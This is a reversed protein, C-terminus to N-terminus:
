YVYPLVAEDAAGEPSKAQIHIEWDGKMIFFVSSARYVGVDLRDVTVPSSGHGMSPMWLLVAMSSALDQPVKTGDLPNTRYTRFVFAGMETETPVKEWTLDVMARSAFSATAAVSSADTAPAAKPSACASLLLALGALRAIRM